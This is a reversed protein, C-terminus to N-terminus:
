KVKEVGPPVDGIYLTNMTLYHRLPLFSEGRGRHEQM